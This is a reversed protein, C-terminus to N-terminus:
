DGSPWRMLAGRSHERPVWFVQTKPARRMRSPVSIVQQAGARLLSPQIRSSVSIVWALGRPGIRITVSLRVVWM